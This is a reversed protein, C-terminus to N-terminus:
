YRLFDHSTGYLAYSIRSKFIIAVDLALRLAAAFFAARVLFLFAASFAAALFAAADLRLRRAAASFAALLRFRLPPL